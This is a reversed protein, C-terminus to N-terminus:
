NEYRLEDRSDGLKSTSTKRSILSRRTSRSNRAVTPSMTPILFGLEGLEDDDGWSDFLMPMSLAMGAAMAQRRTTAPEDPELQRGGDYDNDM